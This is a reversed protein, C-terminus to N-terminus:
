QARKEETSRQRMERREAIQREFDVADTQVRVHEEIARDLAAADGRTFVELLIRHEEVIGHMVPSANKGQRQCTLTRGKTM